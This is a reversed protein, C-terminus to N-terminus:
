GWVTQGLLQTGSTMRMGALIGESMRRAVRGAVGDREGPSLAAADAGGREARVQRALCVEEAATLLPNAGIENLYLQTVDALFETGAENPQRDVFVEVELPLDPEQSDFEDSPVPDDM